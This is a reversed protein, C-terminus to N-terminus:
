RSRRYDFNDYLAQKEQPTYDRARGFLLGNIQDFIGQMGYNRMMFKVQTPTPKDESTELFLLKDQWFDASPWYATGKMFELVDLCGGFLHGQVVGEGQLWQWKEANAHIAGIQGTNAPDAWELYRETWFDFPQYIYSAPGESCYRGFM